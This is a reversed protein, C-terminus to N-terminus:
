FFETPIFLYSLSVYKLLLISNERFHVQELWRIIQDLVIFIRDFFCVYSSSSQLPESLLRNFNCVFNKKRNKGLLLGGEEQRWAKRRSLWAKFSFNCMQQLVKTLMKNIQSPLNFKNCRNKPLIFLRVSLSPISYNFEM